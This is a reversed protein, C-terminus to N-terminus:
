RAELTLLASTSFSPTSSIICLHFLPGTLERNVTPAEDIYIRGGEGSLTLEKHALFTDSEDRHQGCSGACPTASLPQINPNSLCSLLYFPCMRIRAPEISICTFVGMQPHPPVLTTLLSPTRWTSYYEFPLNPQLAQAPLQSSVEELCHKGRKPVHRKPQRVPCKKNRARFWPAVTLLCTDHNLRYRKVM